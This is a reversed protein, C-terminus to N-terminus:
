AQPHAQAPLVGNRSQFRYVQSPPTRVGKTTLHGAADRGLVVATHALLETVGDVQHRRSELHGPGVTRGHEVADALLGQM